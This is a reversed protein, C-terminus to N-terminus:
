EGDVPPKVVEPKYALTIPEKTTVEHQEIVKGISRSVIFDIAKADGAIAKAIQKSIILELATAEKDKFADQINERQATLGLNILDTLKERTLRRLHKQAKTMRPRGPGGKQGLKFYTDSKPMIRKEM